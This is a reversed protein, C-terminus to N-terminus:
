VWREERTLMRQRLFDHLHEMLIEFMNFSFEEQTVDALV